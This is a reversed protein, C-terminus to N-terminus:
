AKSMMLGKRQEPVDRNVLQLDRLCFRCKYLKYVHEDLEAGLRSIQM